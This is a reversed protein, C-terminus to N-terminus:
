RPTRSAPLRRDGHLGPPLGPDLLLAPRVRPRRRRVPQGDRRRRGRAAARGYLEGEDRLPDHEATVILAPPLGTLDPASSRPSWRTPRTPAATSTSPTSPSWGPRRSATASPTRGCRPTATTTSTWTSRRTSCCRTPSRPRVRRRPGDRRRRRRLQRGLQRRRDGADRRGLGPREANSSRGACSATATRWAPRSPRRPPGATASPSSRSGRRRPWPGPSTTTPRWAASSSRAATSTSSWRRLLRGRRPHLDARTRRRGPDARDHGRGRPAAAAGGGAPGHAEEGARMAAPDLPGRAAARAPHRPGQRDRPAPGHEPRRTPRLRRRRAEPRPLRRQGRGRDLGPALHAAARRHGAQADAQYAPWRRRSPTPRRLLAEALAGGDMIASNAGQGQHHCMAHAADGLLAVSDSHWTDVPDIDYVARVNVKDMDLDRVIAVIREDFGEVTALLDEKTVEPDLHRRPRAGHRRLVDPRPPAAAAPLGEHRPRHVHAPQRRRGPRPRRRRRRGRPLRARRRVGAGPRQVAAPARDVQHRRRRHRPRGRRDRRQHLDPRHARRRPGRDSELKHGLRVMGEPLVGVLADIFDGRHILHTNTKVEYDDM